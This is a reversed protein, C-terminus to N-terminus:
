LVIVADIHQQFFHHVVADVLELHTGSLTYFHSYFVTQTDAYAVISSANRLAFQYLRDAFQIGPTFIVRLSELFTDSQVAHADLRDIRQTATELYATVAVAFYTGGDELFSRQQTIHGFVRCFFASGIDEEFRVGCEEQVIGELVLEYFGQQAVVGVQIRAEGENVVALADNGAVPQLVQQFVVHGAFAKVVDDVQFSLVDLNGECVGVLVAFLVVGKDVPLVGGLAACVLSGQLFVNGTGDLLEVVLVLFIGVDAVSQYGGNGDVHLFGHELALGFRFQAAVVHPRGRRLFVLGGAGRHVFVYSVEDLRFHVVVEM